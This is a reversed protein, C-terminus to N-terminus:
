HSQWRTNLKLVICINAMNKVGKRTIYENHVCIDETDVIKEFLYDKIKIL